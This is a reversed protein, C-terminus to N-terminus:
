GRLVTNQDIEFDRTIFAAAGGKTRAESGIQGAEITPPVVGQLDTASLQDRVEDVLRVKLTNPIAGDIVVAEFDIIALSSVIAHALNRAARTLWEQVLYEYDSWNFTEDYLSFPKGGDQKIARELVVLSAHDVLRDGGEQDPVRMPGFGGANGRRGPFVSGNLVIGGGIFTGVFFYIWDQKENHSGFVLEARCASTADNEVIIEWSVIKKFVKVADFDRWTEMENTPADFEETWSWLEYPMTVAMGAIAKRSKKAMKLVVNLHTKLFETALLPTPFPHLERVNAVISGSFDLVALEVSRRGIKFTVYHKVDPNIRLPTSPQGIRGRIPKDRILLNEQELSRFIVSIANASLGTERTADAKTLAGRERVLQLVLRENYNGVAVQNTGKKPISRSENKRSHPNM